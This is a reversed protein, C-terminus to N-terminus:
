SPGFYCRVLYKWMPHSISVKSVGHFPTKQVSSFFQAGSSSEQKLWATYLSSLLIVASVRRCSTVSLYRTVMVNWVRIFLYVRCPCWWFDAVQPLSAWDYVVQWVIMFVQTWIRLVWTFPFFLGVYVYVRKVWPLSWLSLGIGPTQKLTLIQIIWHLQSHSLVCVSM